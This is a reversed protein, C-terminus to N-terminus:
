LQVAICSMYRIEREISNKTGEKGVKKEPCKKGKKETDNNDALQSLVLQQNVVTSLRRSTKIPKTYRDEISDTLKSSSKKLKQPSTEQTTETLDINTETQLGDKKETNLNQSSEISKNLMSMKRMKKTALIEMEQLSIQPTSSRRNKKDKDDKRDNNDSPENNATAAVKSSKFFTSFISDEAYVKLNLKLMKFKKNIKEKKDLNVSKLMAQNLPSKDSIANMKLEREHIQNELEKSKIDKRLQLM